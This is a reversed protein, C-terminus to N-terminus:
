SATTAPGVPALRRLFPLRAARGGNWETWALVSVLGALLAFRANVLTAQWIADLLPDTSTFDFAVPFTLFTVVDLLGSLVLISRQRAALPILLPSFWLVWQPSYFIQISVFVILAIAGRRLLSELSAPRRVTLLALLGLVLGARTLGGKLSGKEKPDALAWSEPFIRYVAQKVYKADELNTHSYFTWGFEVEPERSLQFLYPGLTAAKDFDYAVAPALALVAVTGAYAAGWRAAQRRDGSLYRLMLVALLGPFVKLMTAVGLLLGSTAARQRGLAALSLAVFLTPVVDFRNLSFYLAAPLILLLAAGPYGEGRRYGVRLTAILGLLCAAMLAMYVQAAGRFRKWLASEQPTRPEHWVVNHQRADLVAPPVEAVGPGRLWPLEFLPLLTPPYELFFRDALPQPPEDLADNFQYWWVQHPEDARGPTRGLSANLGRLAIAAMDYDDYLLRELHVQEGAPSYLKPGGFHDAPHLAFIVAMYALPVALAALAILRARRRSRSPPCPAPDAPKTPAPQNM